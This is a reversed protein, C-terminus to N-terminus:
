GILIFIRYTKVNGQSCVNSVLWFLSEALKVNDQFRQLIKYFKHKMEICLWLLSSVLLLPVLGSVVVHFLFPPLRLYHKFVKEIDLKKLIELKCSSREKNAVVGKKHVSTCSQFYQLQPSRQHIGVMENVTMLVILCCLNWFIRIEIVLIRLVVKEKWIILTKLPSIKGRPAFHGM